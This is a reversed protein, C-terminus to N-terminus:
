GRGADLNGTAASTAATKVDDKVLLKESTQMLPMCSVSSSTTFLLGIITLKM